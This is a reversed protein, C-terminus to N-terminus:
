SLYGALWQPLIGSSALLIIHQWHALAWAIPGALIVMRIVASKAEGLDKFKLNLGGEFLIIAVAIGIMPRYVDGFDVQPDLRLMQLCDHLLTPISLELLFGVLPGFILGAIAMLVIAPRQLKWALWQAGIGLAGILAIKFPLSSGEHHVEAAGGALIIDVLMATDFGMIM